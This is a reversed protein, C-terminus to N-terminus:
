DKSENYDSSSSKMYLTFITIKESTQAILARFKDIFVLHSHSQSRSTFVAEQELELWAEYHEMAGLKADSLVVWNPVIM